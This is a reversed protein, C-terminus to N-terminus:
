MNMFYATLDYFNDFKLDYDTTSGFGGALFVFPLGAKRSEVSDLDTDGVYVPNKLNYKEMLLKINHHKSMSNVGFAMEDTIVNGVGAWEMFQVILNEPCNSVIFLNYKNSLKILGEKVGAYLIGGMKPILESRVKNITKFVKEQTEEDYGSLMHDLVKRKEWGMMYDIDKRSIIRNINELRFGENWSAVYTDVADWLNGDMDFIISDPKDM